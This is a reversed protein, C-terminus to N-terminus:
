FRYQFKYPLCADGSPQSVSIFMSASEDTGSCNYSPTAHGKGSVCCGALDGSKAASSGNSCGTVPNDSQNKCRVYVCFELGDTQLEFDTQRDCFAKDTGSLSYFDVDVTGNAIGSVSSYGKGCDDISALVTANSMVEGPDSEDVCSAHGSDPKSNQTQSNGPNTSGSGADGFQPDFAPQGADDTAAQHTAASSPANTDAGSSEDASGCGIMVAVITTAFGLYGFTRARPM